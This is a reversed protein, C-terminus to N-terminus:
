GKKVWEGQTKFNWSYHGFNYKKKKGQLETEVTDIFYHSLHASSVSTIRRRAPLPSIQLPPNLFFFSNLLSPPWFSTIRLGEAASRDYGNMRCMLAPWFWCRDEGSCQLRKIFCQFFDLREIDLLTFCKSSSSSPEWSLLGASCTSHQHILVSPPPSVQQSRALYIILSLKNQLHLSSLYISPIPGFVIWSYLQLLYRPHMWM